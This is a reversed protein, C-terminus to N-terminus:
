IYGTLIYYHGFQILRRILYSDTSKAGLPAKRWFLETMAVPCYQSHTRALFVENGKRMQDTNSPPSILTMPEAPVTVNKLQASLMEDIRFFGAFGVVLIVLFRTIRLDSIAPVPDM